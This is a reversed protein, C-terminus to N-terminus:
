KTEKIKRFIFQCVPLFRDYYGYITNGISTKNHFSDKQGASTSGSMYGRINCKQWFEALKFVLNGIHTGIMSNFFFENLLKLDWVVSDGGALKVM